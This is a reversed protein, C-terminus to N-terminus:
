REWHCADGVHCVLHFRAAIQQATRPAPSRRGWLSGCLGTGYYGGRSVGASHTLLQKNVTLQALPQHPAAHILLWRQAVDGYASTVKHCRCDDMLLTM